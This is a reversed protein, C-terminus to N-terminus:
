YIRLGYIGLKTSAYEIVDLKTNYIDIADFGKYTGNKSKEIKREIGKLINLTEKLAKVLEVRNNM